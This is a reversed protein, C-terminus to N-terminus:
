ALQAKFKESLRLMRELKQMIISKGKCGVCMHAYLYNARRNRIDNPFELDILYNHQEVLTAKDKLEYRKITKYNDMEKTAFDVIDQYKM